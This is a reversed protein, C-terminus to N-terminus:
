DALSGMRAVLDEAVFPERAVATRGNGRMKRSTEPHGLTVLVPLREGLERLQEALTFGTATPFDLPEAHAVALAAIADVAELVSWGEFRAVGSVFEAALPEDDLVLTPSTEEDDAFRLDDAAQATETRQRQIARARRSRHETAM